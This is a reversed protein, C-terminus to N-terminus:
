LKRIGREMKKYENLETKNNGKSIQEESRRNSNGM